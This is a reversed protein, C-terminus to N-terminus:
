ANITREIRLDEGASWHFLVLKAAAGVALKPEPLHLLQAPNRTVLEVATKLDLGAFRMVNAIGVGIPLSAGAMIERQGAVVLKGNPLMEVDGLSTQYRGPLCGGLNTMDSVLICREPTKARLMTKVVAPPLHHGDAILSAMLRDEALQDWIYNPHRKILPHAGNGLHTSLRAGAAVAASIQEQNAATHGVAVVVGQATVQQIFQPAAAYEPSLTVLRIRGGAAAQWRQFEAFEPPRVHEQPHAGRPGAEGSIFPGEVHIGAISRQLGPSQECAARLIACARCIAEPSDTTITPLFSTVGFSAMAAAVQEIKALTLDADNFGVGGYGNVQLDIFGPAIWPLPTASVIPTIAVIAGQAIQLEVSEGTDYRRAQVLM